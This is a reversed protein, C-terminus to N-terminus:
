GTCRGRVGSSWAGVGSDIAVSSACDEGDDDARAHTGLSATPGGACQASSSILGVAAAALALALPRDLPLPGTRMGEAEDAPSKEAAPAGGDDRGSDMSGDADTHAPARAGGDGTRTATLRAGLGLERAWAAM